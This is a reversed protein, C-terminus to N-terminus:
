KELVEEWNDQYIRTFIAFYIVQSGDQPESEGPKWESEKIERFLM